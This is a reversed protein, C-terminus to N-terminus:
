HYAPLNLGRQAVINKLIEVTGGQITYSRSFLYIEAAEGDFPAYRSGPMLQGYPGMTQTAVETLQQEFQTCFSKCLAAEYTPIKGQDLLWAVYYCFLRGAQFDIELKAIQDRVLPDLGLPAGNRHTEKVYQLLRNYLPYNQMLREFGAREYDMQEMIQYFGRNEQGVLNAKPVRVDDFFVENFHHEGVINIIPQITVGPSHMDMIFESLGQHKKPTDSDTRALLWGFDAQHGWSTWVKQGNLIYNDGDKIASTRVSVLDSGADPESFLLCFSIEANLIQPLFKAKQEQTGFHILAPGVQRDGLFHFGLPTQVKLCEEMLIARDVYSRGRGGYQKPWTLGIWGKEAFKRSFTKNSYFFYNSRTTISRTEIESKLFLQVEKRFQDQEETFGFDM